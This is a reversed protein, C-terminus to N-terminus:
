VLTIWKGNILKPSNGEFEIKIHNLKKIYNIMNETIPYESALHSFKNNSTEYKYYGIKQINEQLNM